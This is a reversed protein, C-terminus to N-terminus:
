MTWAYVRELTDRGIDDYGYGTSGAFCQADVRNKQMARLVKLQNYEATGDIAAFREQLSAIIENCCDLVAKDIGFSNYMKLM